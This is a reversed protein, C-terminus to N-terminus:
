LLSITEMQWPLTTMVWSQNAVLGNAGQSKRKKQVKYSGWDDIKKGKAWGRREVNWTRRKSEGDSGPKEQALKREREKIRGWEAVWVNKDGRNRKSCGRGTLVEQSVVLVGLRRKVEEGKKHCDGLSCMLTLSCGSAQSRKVTLVVHHELISPGNSSEDM